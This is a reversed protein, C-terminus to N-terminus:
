KGKTGKLKIADIEVWTNAVTCDIEVRINKTQFDTDQLQSACFVFDHWFAAPFVELVISYRHVGAKRGSM